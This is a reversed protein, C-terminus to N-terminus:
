GPIDGDNFEGELGPAEEGFIVIGLASLVADTKDVAKVSFVKMPQPQNGKKTETFIIQVIKSGNTPIDKMKEKLLLPAPVAIQGDKTLIDFITVIGSAMRVERKGMVLGKVSKGVEDWKILSGSQIEETGAFPDKEEAGPTKATM